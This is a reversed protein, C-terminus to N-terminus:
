TAFHKHYLPSHTIMRDMLKLFISKVFGRRNFRFFFENLYAQMHRQSCQHHIGRLWTKFNMILIHMEGFNKGKESLQQTINWEKGLKEYATWGDTRIAAEASVHRALLKGIEDASYNDITMGYARGMQGNDRRELAVVIIKKDGKSRGQAGEETGGVVFEDVDVNGELAFQVSSSMAEQVKRKFAWCTKQRLSLERSLENSSMGKKAVSIRYCIHFSKLLCFKIKHFLTGATVSEHYGCQLCRKDTAINGTRCQTFSCKRCVYGRSWKLESLYDICDQNTHFRQQFDFLSMANFM